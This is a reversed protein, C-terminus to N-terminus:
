EALREADRGEREACALQSDRSTGLVDGPAAHQQHPEDAPDPERHRQEDRLERESGAVQEIGRLERDESARSTRDHAAEPKAEDKSAISFASARAAAGLQSPHWAGLSRQRDPETSRARTSCM